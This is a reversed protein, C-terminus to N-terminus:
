LLMTGVEIDGAGKGLVVKSTDVDKNLDKRQSRENLNYLTKIRM